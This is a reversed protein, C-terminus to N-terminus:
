RVTFAQIPVLPTQLTRAARARLTTEGTNRLIPHLLPETASPPLESGQAGSGLECVAQELLGHPDPLMVHRVGRLTVAFM